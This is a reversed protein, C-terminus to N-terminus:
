RNETRFVEREALLYIYQDNDSVTFDRIKILTLLNFRKDQRDKQTKTIQNKDLLYSAGSFEKSYATPKLLLLSRLEKENNIKNLKEDKLDFFYAEGSLYNLFYFKGDKKFAREAEFGTQDFFSFSGSSDGSKIKYFSDLLDSFVYVNGDNEFIFKPNFDFSKGSIKGFKELATVNFVGNVENIKEEIKKILDESRKAFLTYSRTKEAESKADNLMNIAEDKNKAAVKQASEVKSGADNILKEAEKVKMYFSISAVAIIIVLVASLFEKKRKALEIAPALMDLLKRKKELELTEEEEVYKSIKDEEINKKLGFVNKISRQEKKNSIEFLIAAQPPLPIEESEGEYIRSITESQKKIDDSLVRKISKSSFIEGLQSTAFIYKDGAELNGTVVSSFKNKSDSSKGINVLSGNRLLYIFHSGIVAFRLEDRVSNIICFSIHKSINQHEKSIDAIASNAKKLCSEFRIEIPIDSLKYFERKTISAILNPLFELDKRQSKVWGIIYLNGYEEEEINSPEYVFTECGAPKKENSLILEQVKINLENM